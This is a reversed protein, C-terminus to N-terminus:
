LLIKILSSYYYNGFLSYINDFGPVALFFHLWFWVKKKLIDEWDKQQYLRWVDQLPNPDLKNQSVRRM